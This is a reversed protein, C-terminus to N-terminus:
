NVPSENALSHGKQYENTRTHIAWMIDEPAGIFKKSQLINKGWSKSEAASARRAPPLEVYVYKSTVQGKRQKYESSNQLGFGWKRSFAQYHGQLPVSNTQGTGKQSTVVPM